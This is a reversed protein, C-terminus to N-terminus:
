MIQVNQCPLPHSSFIFVTHGEYMMKRLTQTGSLNSLSQPQLSYPQEEIMSIKKTLRVDYYFYQLASHIICVCVCVVVWSLYHELLLPMYSVRIYFFALSPTVTHQHKGIQAHKCLHVLRISLTLEQTSETHNLQLHSHVKSATNEM